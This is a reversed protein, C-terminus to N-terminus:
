RGAEWAARMMNADRVKLDCVVIGLVHENFRDVPVDDAREAATAGYAPNDNMMAIMGAGLSRCRKICAGGGYEVVYLGDYVFKDTPAALVYDWDGRLTPHMGDGLVPVVSLKRSAFAERTLAPPPAFLEM